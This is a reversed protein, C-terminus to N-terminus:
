LLCHLNKRALKVLDKMKHGTKLGIHAFKAVHADTLPTTDTIDPMPTVNVNSEWRDLERRSKFLGSVLCTKDPLIVYHYVSAHRGISGIQNHPVLHYVM